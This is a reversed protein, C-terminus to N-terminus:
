YARGGQENLTKALRSFYANFTVFDTGQFFARGGTEDSVRNLASQGFSVALSNWSTLGATPAYFSYVSVGRNKAERVARNLDISDVSSSYDFGRSTDLGDSVLLLANRNAGGAPFLKIADRVQVYPNYPSASTSGVPIRLARAATGLDNTFPQRVQLSGARIYGVLVTSGEPLERIFDATVRLENGVRSVLDDQILVALNVPQSVRESAGLESGKKSQASAPVASAGLVSVALLIAAFFTSLKRMM